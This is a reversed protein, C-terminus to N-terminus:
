RFKTIEVVDNLLEGRELVLQKGDPSWDYSFIRGTEFNTLQKPEGSDIAQSWINYTGNRIDIYSLAQQGPIWLVRQWEFVAIPLLKIPAGGALPLIGIGRVNAGIFYKSAIFRNDSSVAPMSAYQETLQVAEGGAASVKWLTPVGASQHEYIVWKNDPSCAPFFDGGGNTLQALAGGDEANMRWINFTGTRDSSFYIFRGDASVAPHYNDGANLTLQRKESGDISMSLINLNGGTQSSFVLKGDRTGSLGYSQGVVSTVQRAQAPAMVQAVWITSNKRRQVSVIKTGDSPLSIGYYDETDNTIKETQGDALTVNWIQFPSTPHEAASLILAQGDPPWAVRCVV